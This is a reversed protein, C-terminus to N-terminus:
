CLQSRWYSSRGATTVLQPFQFNPLERFLKKDRLHVDRIALLGIAAQVGRDLGDLLDDAPRLELTRNGAAM